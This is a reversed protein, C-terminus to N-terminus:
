FPESFYFGNFINEKLCIYARNPKTIVKYEVDSFM